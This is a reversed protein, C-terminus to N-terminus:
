GFGASLPVYATMAAAYRGSFFATVRVRVRTGPEILASWLYGLWTNDHPGEPPSLTVLRGDLQATVLLTPVGIRV